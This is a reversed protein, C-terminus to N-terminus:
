NHNEVGRYSVYKDACTAIHPKRAVWVNSETLLQKERPTRLIKRACCCTIAQRTKHCPKALDASSLTLNTGNPEPSLRLRGSVRGGGACHEPSAVNETAFSAADGLCLCRSRLLPKRLVLSQRHLLSSPTDPPLECSRHGHSKASVNAIRYTCGHFTGRFYNIAIVPPWAHIQPHNRCCM